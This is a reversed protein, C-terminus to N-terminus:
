KEELEQLVDGPQTPEQPLSEDFLRHLASPEVDPFVPRHEIDELYDSLLDVVRHGLDRFENPNMCGGPTPLHNRVRFELMRAAFRTNWMTLALANMKFNQPASWKSQYRKAGFL